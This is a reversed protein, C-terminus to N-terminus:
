KKKKKKQTTQKPAVVEKETTTDENTEEEEEDNEVSLEELTETEDVEDEITITTPTIKEEDENIEEEVPPKNEDEKKPTEKKLAVGKSVEEKIGKTTLPKVEVTQKKEFKKDDLLNELTLAVVMKTKEDYQYLEVGSILLSMCLSVPCKLPNIIPGYMRLQHLYGVRKTLIYIQDNNTYM